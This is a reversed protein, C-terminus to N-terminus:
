RWVDRFSPERWPAFQVYGAYEGNKKGVHIYVRMRVELPIDSRIKSFKRYEWRDPGCVSIVPDGNEFYCVVGEWYGEHTGCDFVRLVYLDESSLLLWEPGFFSRAPNQHGILAFADLRAMALGGCLSQNM